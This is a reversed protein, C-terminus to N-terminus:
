DVPEHRTTNDIVLDAKRAPDCDRLYLLQGDYYRANAPDHPDDSVGLTEHLRRYTEDFPVQLWVSLDWAKHHRDTAFRKCHLLTGDIIVVADDPAVKWPTHAPAEHLHDYAAARYRGSGENSLPELVDAIFTDLDYSDEYFGQASTRGQAYRVAQPNLFDDLSIRITDLGCEAILDALEDALSTKGSGLLGDIAVLVRGPRLRLQARLWRLGRRGDLVLQGSTTDTM